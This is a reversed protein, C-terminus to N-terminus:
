IVTIVSGTNVDRWLTELLNGDWYLECRAYLSYVGPPIDEFQFHDVMYKIYMPASGEYVGAPTGERFVVSAGGYPVWDPYDPTYFIFILIYRESVDPVAVKYNIYLTGGSNVQDEAPYAYVLDTEKPRAARALAYLGLIVALGIGAGAAGIIIAPRIRGEEAM